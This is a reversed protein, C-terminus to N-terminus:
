NRLLFIKKGVVYIFFFIVIALIFNAFPGACSKFSRQYLPKLIFIKKNKPNYKKLVEEQGKVLVNRDGFFKVYGRFTDLM